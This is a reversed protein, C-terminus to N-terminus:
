GSLHCLALRQGVEPEVDDPLWALLVNLAALVAQHETSLTCDSLEIPAAM